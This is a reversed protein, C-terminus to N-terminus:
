LLEDGYSQFIANLVCSHKQKHKIKVTDKCLAMGKERRVIEVFTTNKIAAM